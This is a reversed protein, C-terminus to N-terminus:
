STFSQPYSDRRTNVKTLNKLLKNVKQFDSFCAQKVIEALHECQETCSKTINEKCLIYDM